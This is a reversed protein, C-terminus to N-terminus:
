RFAIYTYTRANVNLANGGATNNSGDGVTFGDSDLSIINDTNYETSRSAAVINYAMIIASTSDQDTKISISTQGTGSALQGWIVVMRAQFGVGTIAKTANGDGTYTGTKFVLQGGDAIDHLRATGMLLRRLKQWGNIHATTEVLQDQAINDYDAM